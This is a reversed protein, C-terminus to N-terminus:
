PQAPFTMQDIFGTEKQGKVGAQTETNVTTPTIGDWGVSAADFTLTLRNGDISFGPQSGPPANLKSLDNLKIMGDYGELEARYQYADSIDDNLVMDIYVRTGEARFGCGIFNASQLNPDTIDDVADLCPGATLTDEGTAGAAQVQARITVTGEQLDGLNINFLTLISSIPDIEFLGANAPDNLEYSTVIPTEGADPTGQWVTTTVIVNELDALDDVFIRLDSDQLSIFTNLINVEIARQLTGKLSKTVINGSADWFQVAFLNGSADALDFSETVSQPYNGNAPQYTVESADIYGARGEACEPGFDASAVPDACDVPRYVLVIVGRMGSDLDEASVTAQVSNDDLSAIFQQSLVVPPEFDNFVAIPDAGPAVEPHLAQLNMRTFVRFDGRTEFVTKTTGGITKEVPVEFGPRCRFQAGVVSVTQRAENRARFVGASALQTPALTNVCPQPELVNKIWDHREVPFVPDGDPAAMFDEVTMDVYHAAVSQGDGRLLLGHIWSGDPEKPLLRFDFHPPTYRPLLTRNTIASAVGDLTWWTGWNRPHNIQRALAPTYEFADTVGDEQISLALSGTAFSTGGTAAFQALMANASSQQAPPTQQTGAIRVQAVGSISHNIIADEDNASVEVLSAVYLQKAKVLALGASLGNAMEMAQLVAVRESGRLQEDHGSGFGIPGIKTGVQQAWDKELSVPLDLAEISAPVSSDDVSLLSHCGITSMLRGVLTDNVEDSRVIDAGSFDNADAGIEFDLAPLCANHSAHFNAVSIAPSDTQTCGEISEDGLVFCRFDDATWSGSGNLISDPNLSNGPDIGPIGAFSAAAEATADGFFDYGLDNVVGGDAAIEALRPSCGECLSDPDLHGLTTALIEQPTELLRSVSIDEVYLFRGRYPIPAFAGYYSDIANYGLGYAFSLANPTTLLDPGYLSENLITTEDTEFRPPIVKYSGLFQLYDVSSVNALQGQLYDRIQEALDNQEQVDCINGDAADFWVSPVSVVKANVADLFPSLEEIFADWEADDLDYAKQYRQRQTLIYTQYGDPNTDSGIPYVTDPSFTPGEDAGIFPPQPNDVDCRNGFALKPDVPISVQTSMTYPASTVSGNTAAVVLYLSKAPNIEVLLQEQGNVNASLGIFQVSQQPIAQLDDSGTETWNTDVGSITSGDPAGFLQTRPINQYQVAWSSTDGPSGGAGIFPSQRYEAGIFPAGIFPAGIFPAGIFPAGIFPLSGFVAGIFPANEFDAGIFPAGIFPAGIFPANKFPTDQEASVFALLDYDAGPSDLTTLVQSKTPLQQIQLGAVRSNDCDSLTALDAGPEYDDKPLCIRYVDIDDANNLQGLTTSNAMVLPPEGTTSNTDVSERASIETEKLVVVDFTTESTSVDDAVVCSGSTVGSAGATFALQEQGSAVAPISERNSSNSFEQTQGLVTMTVTIPDEIGVDAWNCTAVGTGNEAVEVTLTQVLPPANVVQIMRSADISNEGDDARLTVEYTGQQPFAVLGVAGEAQEVGDVLWTLSLPDGNPDSVESLLSILDGELITSGTEGNGPAYIFSGEPPLNADDLYGWTAHAQNNAALVNVSFTVDSGDTPLGSIEITKWGTDLFDTRKGVDITLECPTMSCSVSQGRPPNEISLPVTSSDTLVEYIPLSLEVGADSGAKVSFIVTDDGRHEFSMLYFSFRLKDSTSPFTQYVRNPGSNQKESVRKPTGLRVAQEGRYPSVTIGEDTYVPFDGPGEAAVVVVSDTAQTDWPPSAPQQGITDDEFGPNIPAAFLLGSCSLLGFSAVGRVMTILASMEFRISM